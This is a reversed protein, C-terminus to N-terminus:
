YDRFANLLFPFCYLYLPTLGRGTDGHGGEQGCAQLDQRADM